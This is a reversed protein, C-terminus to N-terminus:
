KQHLQFYQIILAKSQKLLSHTDNMYHMEFVVILNSYLDPVIKM